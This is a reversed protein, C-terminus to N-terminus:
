FVKRDFKQIKELYFNYIPRKARNYIDCKIDFFRTASKNMRFHCEGEMNHDVAEEENTGQKM